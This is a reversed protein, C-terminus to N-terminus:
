GTACRSYGERIIHAAMGVYAAPDEPVVAAMGDCYRNYMCFAASILVSDHIETDTAGATRAAEVMEDNVLKGNEAVAEAITILARMKPTLPASDVDALVKDVVARGEPSQQASVESHTRVCFECNNLQSVYAAIMERDSRSMSHESRLLVEALQSIPGGTEQRYQMLGPTGPPLDAPITVHPM